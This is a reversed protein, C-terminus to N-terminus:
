ASITYLPLGSINLFVTDLSWHWLNVYSLRFHALDEIVEGLITQLKQEKHQLITITINPSKIQQYWGLLPQSSRNKQLMWQSPLCEWFHTSSSTVFWVIVIPNNEEKKEKKWKEVLIQVLQVGEKFCVRDTQFQKCLACFPKLEHELEKTRLYFCLRLMRTQSLCRAM